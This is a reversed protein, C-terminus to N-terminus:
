TSECTKRQSFIRELRKYNVIEKMQQKCIETTLTGEENQKMATRRLVVEKGTPIEKRNSM